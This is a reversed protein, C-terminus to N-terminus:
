SESCILLTDIQGATFHPGRGILNGFGILFQVLLAAPDGESLPEIIRLFCSALGYMADEGLPVPWSPTHVVPAAKSESSGKARHPAHSQRSGAKRM